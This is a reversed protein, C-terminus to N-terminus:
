TCELTVNKLVMSNRKTTTRRRRRRWLNLCESWSWVRDTSSLILCSWPKGFEDRFIAQQPHIKRSSNPFDPCSWVRDPSGLNTVSFPRSLTSKGHRIQSVRITDSGTWSQHIAKEFAGSAGEIGNVSRWLTIHSNHSTKAVYQCALSQWMGPPTWPLIFILKSRWSSHIHGYSLPLLGPKTDTVQVYGLPGRNSGPTRWPTGPWHM